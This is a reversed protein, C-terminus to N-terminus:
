YGAPFSAIQSWTGNIYSGNIDPTLKYWALTAVNNTQDNEEHAIVTGDTLLLATGLNVPPNNTTRTWPSPASTKQMEAPPSAPTLPVRVSFAWPLAPDGSLASPGLPPLAQAFCSATLLFSGLVLTFSLSASRRFDM